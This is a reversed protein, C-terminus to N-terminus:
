GSGHEGWCALIGNSRLGCTHFYSASLTENFVAANDPAFVGASAQIGPLFLLLLGLGALGGARPRIRRV